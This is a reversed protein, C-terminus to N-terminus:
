VWWGIMEKRKLKIKKNKIDEMRKKELNKKIEDDLRKEEKMQNLFDPTPRKMKEEFKWRKQEFSPGGNNGM